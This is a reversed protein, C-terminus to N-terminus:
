VSLIGWIIRSFSANPTVQHWLAQGVCMRGKSRATAGGTRFAWSWQLLSWTHWWIDDVDDGDGDGDDVVVVVVDDDDCHFECRQLMVHRWAPGGLVFARRGSFIWSPVGVGSWAGQTATKSSDLLYMYMWWICQFSKHWMSPRQGSWVQREQWGGEVCM